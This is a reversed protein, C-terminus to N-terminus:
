PWIRQWHGLSSNLVVDRVLALREVAALLCLVLLSVELAEVQLGLGSYPRSQRVHAMNTDAEGGRGGPSFKANTSGNM